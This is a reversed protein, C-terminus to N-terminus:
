SCNTAHHNHHWVGVASPGTQSWPPALNIRMKQWSITTMPSGAVIWGGLGEVMLEVMLRNNNDITVTLCHHCFSLIDYTM